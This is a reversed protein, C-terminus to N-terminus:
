RDLLERAPKQRHSSRQRHDAHNQQQLGIQASEHDNRGNGNANKKYAADVSLQKGCQQGYQYATEQQQYPKRRPPALTQENIQIGPVGLVGIAASVLQRVGQNGQPASFPKAHAQAGTDFFLDSSCVDSSWDSIRM